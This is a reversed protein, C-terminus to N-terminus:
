ARKVDALWFSSLAHSLYRFLTATDLQDGDVFDSDTLAALFGSPTPELAGPRGPANAPISIIVHKPM